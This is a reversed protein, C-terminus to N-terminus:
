ILIENQNSMICIKGHAFFLDGKEAKELRMKHYRQKGIKRRSSKEAIQLLKRWHNQKATKKLPWGWCGRTKKSEGIKTKSM